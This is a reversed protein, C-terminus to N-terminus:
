FLKVADLGKGDGLKWLAELTKPAGECLLRWGM